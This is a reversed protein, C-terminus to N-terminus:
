LGITKDSLADSGFDESDNLSNLASDIESTTADIDTADVRGDDASEIPQVTEAPANDGRSQWYVYGAAGILGLTVVVALIIVVIMSRRKKNVQKNLSTHQQEYNPAGVEQADQGPLPPQPPLPAQASPPASFLPQSPPAQAAVPQAPPTVPQEPQPFSPQPNIVQPSPNQIDMVPQAPPTPTPSAQPTLPQNNNPDM